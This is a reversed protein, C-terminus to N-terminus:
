ILFLRWHKTVKLIRKSSYSKHCINCQFQGPAIRHIRGIHSMLLHKTGYEKGCDDCKFVEGTKNLRRLHKSLDLFYKGCHWCEKKEPNLDHFARRHIKLQQSQFFSKGCTECIHPRLKEHVNKTHASLMFTTKFGKQCVTCVFSRYEDGLHSILHNNYAGKVAFAAGCTDCTFKKDVSHNRLHKALKIHDGFVKECCACKFTDSKLHVRIHDYAIRRTHRKGCCVIYGPCNHKSSYHTLLQNFTSFGPSKICITCVLIKLENMIRDLNNYDIRQPDVETKPNRLVAKEVPHVPTYEGKENDDEARALSYERDPDNADTGTEDHDYVQHPDGALSNEGDHVHLLLLELDPAKRINTASVGQYHTDEESEENTIKNEEALIQEGFRGSVRLRFNYLVEVSRICNSCVFFM